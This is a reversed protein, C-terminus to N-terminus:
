KYVLFLVQTKLQNIISFKYRLFEPRFIQDHFVGWSVCDTLVQFNENKSSHFATLQNQAIKPTGDSPSFRTAYSKQIALLPAVEKRGVAGKEEEM